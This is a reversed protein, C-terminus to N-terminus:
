TQSSYMPEAYGQVVVAVLRPLVVPEAQSAHMEMASKM